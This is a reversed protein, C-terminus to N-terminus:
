TRVVRLDDPVVSGQILPNTEWAETESAFGLRQAIGYTESYAEFQEFNGGYNDQLRAQWGTLGSRCKVSRIKQAPM